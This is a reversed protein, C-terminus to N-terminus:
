KANDHLRASLMLEDEGEALDAMSQLARVADEAGDVRGGDPAQTSWLYGRLSELFEEERIDFAVEKKVKEDCIEIKELSELAEEWSGNEIQEKMERVEARASVCGSEESLVTAAKTYRLVPRHLNLNPGIGSM